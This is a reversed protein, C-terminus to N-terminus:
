EETSPFGGETTPWNAADAWGQGPREPELHVPGEPQSPRFSLTPDARRPGSASRGSPGGPLRHNRCCDMAWPAPSACGRRAVWQGQRYSPTSPASTPWNLPPISSSPVPRHTWRFPTSIRPSDAAAYLVSDGAMPFGGVNFPIVLLTVNDRESEELLRDLQTKAVHQRGVQMRLAAEHILGRYRVAPTKTIVTHRALRQAIRLEVELRPLAPIFLDFLARAHDEVQFMGPLHATQLTRTVHRSAGARGRGSLRAAGQRPVGDSWGSSRGGTMTALADILTPDDCEYISAPQRLRQESIGFRGAETNSITTRDTGLLEAARPASMGTAERLQRLEAGFRRQRITFRSASKEGRAAIQQLEVEPILWTYPRSRLRRSRFGPGSHALTAVDIESM